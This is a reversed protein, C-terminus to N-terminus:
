REAAYAQSTGSRWKRALGLVGGGVILSAGALTRATLPEDLVLVSLAVAFPINAYYIISTAAASLRTTLRVWLSHAILTVGVALFLLGYWDRAALSAFDAKPLFLLFFLLAFAFQGLARTPTPIHAWRQHLIPLAAYFVASLCSLVMGIVVDDKLDFSPVVAIAGAVALLVAVVDLAHTKERRFLAGLILLDVGYTSLGIAAISASSAKIALFFTLWHAFFFFGIAGLRLLDPRAVAGLERRLLMWGGLVTTAVALRAIGITYPNASILKVVVPICGFLGVAILAEFALIATRRKM